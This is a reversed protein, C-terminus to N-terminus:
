NVTLPTDLTTWKGVAVDTKNEIIDAYCQGLM